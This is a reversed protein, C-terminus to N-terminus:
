TLYQLDFTKEMSHWYTEDFEAILDFLAELSNRRFIIALGTQNAEIREDLPLTPLSPETTKLDFIPLSRMALKYIEGAAPKKINDFNLVLSTNSEKIIEGVSLSDIDDKLIPCYFIPNGEADWMELTLPLRLNHRVFLKTDEFWYINATQTNNKIEFVKPKDIYNNVQEKKPFYNNLFLVTYFHKQRNTKVNRINM